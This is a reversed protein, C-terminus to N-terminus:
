DTLTTEFVFAISVVFETMALAAFCDMKLGAFLYTCNKIYGFHLFRKISQKAASEIVRISQHNLM